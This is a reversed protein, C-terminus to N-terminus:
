EIFAKTGFFSLCQRRLLNLEKTIFLFTKNTFMLHVLFYCSEPFHHELFRLTTNNLVEDVQYLSIRHHIGIINRM